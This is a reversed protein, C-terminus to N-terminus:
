PSEVPRKSQTRLQYQALCRRPDEGQDVCRLLARDFPTTVCERTLADAAAYVRPSLEQAAEPIGLAQLAFRHCEQPGPAKRQCALLLLATAAVLRRTV